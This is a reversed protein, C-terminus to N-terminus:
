AAKVQKVEIKLSLFAILLLTLIVFIWKVSTCMSSMHAITDFRDPFNKLMIIIGTNELLDAMFIIVPLLAWKLNITPTNSKRLLILLLLILTTTYIIPYPIDVAVTTFAYLARGKEGYSEIMDYVKVPSYSFQLDIPGSAEPSLVQLKDGFWPFLVLNILLIFGFGILVFKWKAYRDFFSIM